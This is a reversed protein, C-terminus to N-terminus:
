NLVYIILQVLSISGARWWPEPLLSYLRLCSCYLCRSQGFRLPRIDMVRCKGTQGSASQDTVKSRKWMKIDEQAWSIWFDRYWFLLYCLIKACHVHMVQLFIKFNVSMRKLAKLTLCKPFKAIPKYKQENQKQFNLCMGSLEQWLNISTKQLFNLLKFHSQHWKKNEIRVLATERVLWYSAAVPTM